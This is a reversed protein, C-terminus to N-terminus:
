EGIVPPATVEDTGFVADPDGEVLYSARQHESDEDGEGRQGGMPMMGGGAAGRAGAGRMAASEAAFAGGPGYGGGAGPGRGLGGQGSSGPGGSGPGGSGPGYGGSGGPGFGSRSGIGGGRGGGRELDGASSGPLATIPLATSPINPNQGPQNGPGPPPFQGLGPRNNAGPVESSPTTGGGSGSGSGSGGPITVGGPGGPQNAGGPNSPNGSSGPPSSPIGTGTGPPQNSGSTTTTRSDVNNNVNPNNTGTEGVENQEVETIGTTGGMQPPPGFAPMTSATALSSDYSGVIGAAEEHAAQQANYQSQYTNLKSMLELPNSTSQLDQNAADLNFDVPEPMNRKAEELASGQLDTQVGALQAGQGATGIWNGIDTMFTRAADGADGQWETTSSRIAQDVSRQFTVMANGANVWWEGNDRVTAPDVDETVMTKLQRHATAMYNSCQMIPGQRLELGRALEAAQASMEQNYSDQVRGNRSFRSLWELLFFQDEDEATVQNQVRDHTERGTEVTTRFDIGSDNGNSHRDRPAM